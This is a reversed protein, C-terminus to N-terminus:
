AATSRRRCCLSARMGGAVFCWATAWSRWPRRIHPNLAIAQRQIREAEDYDGTAFRLAALSQLATPSRSALTWRTNRPPSGPRWRARKAAPEVFDFRAADMHVYALMAWAAAYNPDLRVAEELCSRVGIYLEKAFTRRYAFARQACDYAFLTAPRSQRLRKAAAATIVGNGQALQSVIAATLEAEVDFIEKTTLSRDYTQSWLVQGSDRDTVRATVRVRDSGREVSGAVLYAPLGNAVGPLETRGRSEPLGAFVLMGDFRMLDAILSATLGNALLQGREGGDLPTFPLVIVAPGAQQAPEGSGLRWAAAM